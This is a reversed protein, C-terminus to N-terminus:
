TGGVFAKNDQQNPQINQLRAIKPALQEDKLHEPYLVLTGHGIDWCVVDEDFM